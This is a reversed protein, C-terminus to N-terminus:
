ALSLDMDTKRLRVGILINNICVYAPWGCQM